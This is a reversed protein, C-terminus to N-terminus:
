QKNKKIFLYRIVYWLGLTKHLLFNNYNLYLYIYKRNLLIYPKLSARMTNIKTSIALLVYFHFIKFLAM